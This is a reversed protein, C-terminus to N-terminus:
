PLARPIPPWSTKLGSLANCIKPKGQGVYFKLLEINRGKLAKEIPTRLGNGPPWPFQLEDRPQLCRLWPVRSERSHCLFLISERKRPFSLSFFHIGAQAPIVHPSVFPCQNNKLWEANTM